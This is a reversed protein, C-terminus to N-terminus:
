YNELDTEETATNFNIIMDLLSPDLSFDAQKGTKYRSRSENRERLTKWLIEKDESRVVLDNIIQARNFLEGTTYIFTIRKWKEAKIPQPIQMLPGLEVKYYEEKARPHATEERLLEGRTTLEHGRYEAYYEIQWRHVEGFNAGQYFAFYDVDIIKPACRLPIRYWGLMRAIEFDKLAPIIGILLLSNAWCEPLKL